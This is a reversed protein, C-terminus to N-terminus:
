EGAGRESKPRGGCVARDLNCGKCPDGGRMCIGMLVIGNLYCKTPVYGQGIMMDRALKDQDTENEGEPRM